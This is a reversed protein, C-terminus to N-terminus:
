GQRADKAGLQAGRLSKGCELCFPQSRPTILGCFPCMGPSAVKSGRNKMAFFNRLCNVIFARARVAM